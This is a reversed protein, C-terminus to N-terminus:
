GSQIGTLDLVIYSHILGRFFHEFSSVQANDKQLIRVRQADNQEDMRRAQEILDEKDKNLIDIQFSFRYIVVNFQSACSTPLNYGFLQHDM